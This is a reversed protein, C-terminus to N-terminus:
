HHKNKQMVFSVSACSEPDTEFMRVEKKASKIQELIEPDEVYEVDIENIRKEMPGFYECWWDDQSLIFYDVLRYGCVPILKLKEQVDGLEDHVALYGNPKLLPWWDRLGREFGLVFISGESWIIDFYENPFDLDNMSCKIIKVRNSFGANLIREKCKKLAEADIDIAIIEGDTLKALELTPIGSGCGIDLIKPHEIRPILKFAKHTYKILNKRIEDKSFIVKDANEMTM